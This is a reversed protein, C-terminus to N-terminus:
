KSLLMHTESGAFNSDLIKQFQDMINTNFYKDKLLNIAKQSTKNKACEVMLSRRFDMSDTGFHWQSIKKLKYNNCIYDISEHTYLHTHGPTLQRPFSNNFVNEIFVSLSFLPVSFFIYKADSEIFAKIAMEPNRLHELVGIFCVVMSKTTKIKYILADESDVKKFPNKMDKFESNIWFDSALSILDQSIDYGRSKIGISFLANVFHGGGCGFDDVEYSSIKAINNLSDALYNAKPLYIKKIRENYNKLYNSSYNTGGESKYLYETFEKTDEKSGNLHGCEPCIHYEVEHNKFDFKNEQIDIKTACNKCFKRIPQNNYIENLRKTRSILNENDSLFDKKIESIDLLSKSFKVKM